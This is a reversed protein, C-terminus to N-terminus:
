IRDEKRLYRKLYRVIADDSLQNIKEPLTGTVTVRMYCIQFAGCRCKYYWFVRGSMANGNVTRMPAMHVGICRYKCTHFPWM